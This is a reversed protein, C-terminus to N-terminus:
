WRRGNAGAGRAGARHYRGPDRLYDVVESIETKVAPYGAVDAFRTVPREGDIVRAKAKTVGTLRGLGGGPGGAQQRFGRFASLVLGGILLLSLM